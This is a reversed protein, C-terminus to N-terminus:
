ETVGLEKQQALLEQRAEWLFGNPGANEKMM